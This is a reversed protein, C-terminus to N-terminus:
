RVLGILYPLNELRVLPQDQIRHAIIVRQEGSGFADFAQPLSRLRQQLIRRRHARVGRARPPRVRNVLQDCRM